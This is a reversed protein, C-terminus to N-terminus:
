RCLFVVLLGRHRSYFYRYSNRSHIQAKCTNRPIFITLLILELNLYSVFILTPINNKGKTKRVNLFGSVHTRRCSLSTFYVRFILNGIKRKLRLNRALAQAFLPIEHKVRAVHSRQATAAYLFFFVFFGCYYGGLFDHYVCARSAHCM